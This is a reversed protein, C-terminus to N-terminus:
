GVISSRAFVWPQREKDGQEDWAETIAEDDVLLTLEGEVATFLDSPLPAGASELRDALSRLVRAQRRPDDREDGM